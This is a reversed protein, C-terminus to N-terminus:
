SAKQKVREDHLRQIQEWYTEARQYVESKTWKEFQAPTLLEKLEKEPIGMVPLATQHLHWDKYFTDLDQQFTELSHRIKADLETSQEDTLPSVQAVTQLVLEAFTENRFGAREARVTRITQLQEANLEAQLTKEWLPQEEIRRLNRLSFRFSMEHEPMAALRARLERAPCEKMFEVVFGRHGQAAAEVIADAAGLAASRLRASQEPALHCERTAEDVRLLLRGRTEEKLQQTKRFLFESLAQEGEEPELGFEPEASPEPLPPQKARRGRNTAANKDADKWRRVQEPTLISALQADPITQGLGIARESQLGDPLEPLRKSRLRPLLQTQLQRRQESSFAVHEDLEVLLLRTWLAAEKDERRASARMEEPPVIKVLGEKWLPQNKYTRLATTHPYPPFTTHEPIKDTKLVNEREPHSLSRLWAEAARCYDEVSQDLAQEMLKKLEEIREKKVGQGNEFVALERDVDPSIWDRIRKTHGRVQKRIKEARAKEAALLSAHQDPSLTRKLLADWEATRDPVEPFPRRLAPQEFDLVNSDDQTPAVITQVTKEVGIEPHKERAVRILDRLHTTWKELYAAFLPAAGKEIAELAPPAVSATTKIAALEEELRKALKERTAQTAKAVEEAFADNGAKEEARTNGPETTQTRAFPAVALLLCAALCTPNLAASRSM